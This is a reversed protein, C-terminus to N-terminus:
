VQIVRRIIKGLRPALEEMDDVMMHNSFMREQHYKNAGAIGIQIINWGQAELYTVVKKVHKRGMDGGYGYAAPQGDSLILMLKNSMPQESEKKVKTAAAYIATGDRNEYRARMAGMAMPRDRMSPGWYETMNTTFTETHWGSEGDATHGFVWLNLKSNDSLAEKIAIASKRAIDMKYSGMSGSEDVLLCVDLPKDEQIIDLKFLDSRGTPIRHLMRKDIKGRKQNRIVHRQTNGYLDIKRKLQTTTNKIESSCRNYIRRAHEDGVAKRWTVKKAKGAVLGVDSIDYEEYDSDELEQIENMLEDSLKEIDKSYDTIADYERLKGAPIAKSVSSRRRDKRKIDETVKKRISEWDEDSMDSDDLAEKLESMKDEIDKKMQEGGDKVMKDAVQRLYQFLADVCKYVNERSNLADKLARAFFGIHKAHKKRRSENLHAPWRIFALLSNLLDIFPNEDNDKLKEEMKKNFYHQKVKEIYTVFGANTKHLQKEIYEDEVSNMISHLLQRETGDLDHELSYEREWRDIGKSHILHLKEHIALGSTIDLNDESEKLLSGDIRILNRRIDSYSTKNSSWDLDHTVTPDVVKCLSDLHRKHKLLRSANGSDYSNYGGGWSGWMSSVSGRSSNQWWGSGGGWTYGSGRNWIDGTSTVTPADSIAVKATTASTFKDAYDVEEDCIPCCDDMTAEIWKSCNYCYDDDVVEAWDDVSYKSDM